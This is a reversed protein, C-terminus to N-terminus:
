ALQRLREATEADAPYFSEIALEDVTVDAATEVAASISFFSLDGVRHELRLPLVVNLPCRATRGAPTAACSTWCNPSGSIV